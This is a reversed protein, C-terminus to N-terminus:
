AQLNTVCMISPNISVQLIYHKISLYQQSKRSHTIKLKSVNGGYYGLKKHLTKNQKQHAHSKFSNENREINTSLIALQYDNFIFDYM